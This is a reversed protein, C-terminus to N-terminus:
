DTSIPNLRSITVDLMGWRIDVILSYRRVYWEDVQDLTNPPRQPQLDSLYKICCSSLSRHGDGDFGSLSRLMVLVAQIRYEEPNKQLQDLGALTTWEEDSGIRRELKKEAFSGVAKKELERLHHARRWYEFAKPFLSADLAGLIASAGALELADIIETRSYIDRDLLYELVMLKSYKAATLLPKFGEKDRAMVEAGNNDILLIVLAMLSDDDAFRRIALHLLTQGTQPIRQKLDLDHNKILTTITDSGCMSEAWMPQSKSPHFSDAIPNAGFELLSRVVVNREEQQELLPRRSDIQVDSLAAHLPTWGDFETYHGHSLQVSANAGRELLYRVIRRHGHFAAVFLPSAEKIRIISSNLIAPNSFYTASANVDAGWTEIIHKVTDLEGVQCAPILPSPGGCFNLDNLTPHHRCSSAEIWHKEIMELHQLKM